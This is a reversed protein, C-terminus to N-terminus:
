KGQRLNHSREDLVNKHWTPSPIDEENSCLAEWLQEMAQLKHSVTMEALPLTVKM